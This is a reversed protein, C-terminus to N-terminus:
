NEATQQQDLGGVNFAILSFWTTLTLQIVYTLTNIFEKHCSELLWLNKGWTKYHKEM